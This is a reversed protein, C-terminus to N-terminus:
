SHRTFLEIAEKIVPFSAILSAAGVLINKYRTLSKVDKEVGDLRSVGNPILQTKVEGMDKNMTHLLVTHTALIEKIETYQQNRM